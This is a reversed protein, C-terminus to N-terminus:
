PTTRGFDRGDGRALIIKLTYAPAEMKLTRQNQMGIFSVTVVM